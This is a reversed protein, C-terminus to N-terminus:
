VELCMGKEEWGAGRAEQRRKQRGPGEIISKRGRKQRLEQEESCAIIKSWCSSSLSRWSATHKM